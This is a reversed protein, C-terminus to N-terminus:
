RKVLAVRRNQQRGESTENPAAPKSAGLGKAELRAEEVGYTKILFLRVAEARQQSLTLNRDPSGVNDTHGEVVFTKDKNEKLASAVENLRERATPLIESKGFAFLVSGSLTIVIGRPEKKVEASKALADIAQKERAEAAERATREAELKKQQEAPQEKSMAAEESAKRALEM